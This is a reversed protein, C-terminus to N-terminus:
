VKFLFVKKQTLVFVKNIEKSIKIKLRLKNKSKKAVERSQTFVAKLKRPTSLECPCDGFPPQRKKLSM